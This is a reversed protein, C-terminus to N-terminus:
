RKHFARAGAARQRGKHAGPAAVSGVPRLSYPSATQNVLVTVSGLGALRRGSVIVRVEQIQDSVPVDGPIIGKKVCQQVTGPHPSTLKFRLWFKSM